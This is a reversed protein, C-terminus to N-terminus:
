LLRFVGTNLDLRWWKFFGYPFVEADNRSGVVVLTEGDLKARASLGMASIVQDALSRVLNSAEDANRRYCIVVRLESRVCLLKWLSYAIRDDNLCNELEFVAKPFRWQKQGDAFAMVDLALYESQAVPLLELKHGIASAPWGMDNCTQVVMATLLKTWDGLQGNLSAEKLNEADPRHQITELFVERWQQALSNKTRSM